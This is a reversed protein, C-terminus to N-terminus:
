SGTRSSSTTSRPARRSSSPTPSSTSRRAHACAAGGGRAGQEATGVPVTSKNVVVTYRRSAGASRRRRRRARLVLDAEGTEGPPTGVAIFVVEADQMAERSPPPSPSGSRACTASSWSRSARSTSPSRARAPADRDEAADVDVCIVDNGSDAFCTGTVLGVYGTGIVAIKMAHEGNPRPSLAVDLVPCPTLAGAGAARRGGCGRPLRLRAPDRASEVVRAVALREARGWSPRCPARESPRRRSSTPSSPAPATCRARSDPPARGRASRRGAGPRGAGPLALLERLDVYLSCRRTSAWSPSTPWAHGPARDEAAPRAVARGLAPYPSGGISSGTIRAGGPWWGKRSTSRSAVTTSRPPTVARAPAQRRLVRGGGPARRLARRRDGRVALRPEGVPRFALHPYLWDLYAARELLVVPVDLEGCSRGEADRAQLRQRERRGPLAAPAAGPAVGPVQAGSAARSSSTRPSRRWGTPTSSTRWSPRPRM